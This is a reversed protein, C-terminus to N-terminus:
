SLVKLGMYFFLFVAILIMLVSLFLMSKKSKYANSSQSDIERQVIFFRVTSSVILLLALLFLALGVLEASLSPTLNTQSISAIFLEFKEVIFGFTMLSISTRIWALYTRENAAHDKYNTIM